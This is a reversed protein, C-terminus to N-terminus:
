KRGLSKHWFFQQFDQSLFSSKDERRHQWSSELADLGVSGGPGSRMLGAWHWTPKRLVPVAIKVEGTLVPSDPRGNAAHHSKVFLSNFSGRKIEVSYSGGM